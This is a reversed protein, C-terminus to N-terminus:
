STIPVPGIVTTKRGPPGPITRIAQFRTRRVRRWGSAAPPHVTHRNVLRRPMGAPWVRASTASSTACTISSAKPPCTPATTPSEIPPVQCHVIVDTGVEDLRSRLEDVPINVAGPIAESACEGANRVDLVTAGAAIADALEHWQITDVAGTVMNDAIFGLMNVPDKASGFPPAYALELDALDSATLGGRIATAIVDIRKDVGAGGVGQVGLIADTEADVLLKPEDAHRRPLLGRSAGPAHPHRPDTPRGSAPAEREM